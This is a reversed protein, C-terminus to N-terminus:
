TILRYEMIDHYLDVEEVYYRTGTYDVRMYPDYENEGKPITYVDEHYKLNLESFREAAKGVHKRAEEETKYAAVQWTIHDSYEGCSGMVVYIKEM